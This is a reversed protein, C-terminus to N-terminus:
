AVRKEAHQGAQRREEGNKEIITDLTTKEWKNPAYNGGAGLPVPADEEETSSKTKM